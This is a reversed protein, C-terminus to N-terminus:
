QYIILKVLIRVNKYAVQNSIEASYFKIHVLVKILVRLTYYGNLAAFLWLTLEQM